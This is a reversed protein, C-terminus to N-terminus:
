IVSIEKILKSVKEKLFAITEEIDKKDGFKPIKLNLNLDKNKESENLCDEWYEYDYKGMWGPISSKRGMMIIKDADRISNETLQKSVEKSIDLGHNNMIEILSALYDHNEIAVGENGDIKVDTGYSEAFSDRNTMQNYLAKCIQSRILNGRCIFVVKKM